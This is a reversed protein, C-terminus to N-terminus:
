TVKISQWTNFGKLFSPMQASDVSFAFDLWNDQPKLHGSVAIQGSSTATFEIFWEAYFFARLKASGSSSEIIKSLQDIFSNMEEYDILEFVTCLFEKCSVKINLGYSHTSKYKELDIFELIENSESRLQITM